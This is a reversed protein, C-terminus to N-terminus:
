LSQFFQFRRTGGDISSSLQSQDIDHNLAEEQVVHKLGGESEGVEERSNEPGDVVGLIILDNSIMGESPQRKEFNWKQKEEFIM